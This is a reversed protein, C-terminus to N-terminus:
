GQKRFTLEVKLIALLVFAAFINLFTFPITLSFLTNVAWIFVVPVIALVAFAVVLGFLVKLGASITNYM